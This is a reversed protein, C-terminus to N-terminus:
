DVSAQVHAGLTADDVVTWDEDPDFTTIVAAHTATDEGFDRQYVIGDRNVIFTMIGTDGYDAPWAIMAFGGVMHGNVVYDYAGASAHPGQGVLVRFHYGLLPEGESREGLVADAFAKLDALPSEVADPDDDAVDWYLGDRAGPSSAVRQAYEVVGDGDYDDLAYSQQAGVYADLLAIANLENAGVLRNRLEEVGAEGDFQWREGVGVIPIPFPWGMAGIILVYRDDAERELNVFQQLAVHMREMRATALAPDAAQGAAFARYDPGFLADFREPDREAVAEKLAEVAAEPTGFTIEAALPAASTLLVLLTTYKMSRVKGRKM